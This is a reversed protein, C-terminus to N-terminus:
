NQNVLADLKTRARQVKALIDEATATWVYPKPDDNNAELYTEISTILDPVSGFIGRRLNRETLDRFWREVMNLWSSSTPIFHLHFRQHRGLWTIVDPHKHTAYNDLILHVQLHSPVEADITKLFVLFEEHRHKPLCQGIVTGTLVDLAAFLTTTGHRKYDHTITGARGKVMPLSAQTRDLAQISSKEDMCLVIAQEPPNLYLGVVDILKETFRPDNSVKFTDLRHPALGLDHWLRQVTAPSVGVRTAMTRCSWHTHGKPKEQTTLRVIESVKEDTITAKRGRGRRVKGWGTLGKETFETRWARVTVATVEYRAAIVSNAVGEAAALLVRARTVDRYPASVSGAVRELVERDTATIPLPAAPAAM